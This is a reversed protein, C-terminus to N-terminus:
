KVDRAAAYGLEAMLPGCVAEVIAIQTADLDGRWGDETGRRFFNSRNEWGPERPAGDGARQKVGDISFRGADYPIPPVDLAQWVPALAVDPAALLAEYRLELTRGAPLAGSGYGVSDRWVEAAGQADLGPENAWSERAYALMSAVVARPDRLVHIFIADPYLRQMLEISWIQSATKELVIAAGPKTAAIADLVADAFLRCAADFGAEDLLVRLGDKGVKNAEADYRRYLDDLYRDFLHTERVTAIAPHAGLVIQLWTTGSRPCGVIFLRKM